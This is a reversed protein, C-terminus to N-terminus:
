EPLLMLWGVLTENDDWGNICSSISDSSWNLRISKGSAFALLVMSEESKSPLNIWHNATDMKISMTPLHSWKYIRTVKGECQVSAFSSTSFLLLAVLLYKKM